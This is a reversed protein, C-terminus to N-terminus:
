FSPELSCATPRTTQRFPFTTMKVSTRKKMQFQTTVLKMMLFPNVFSSARFTSQDKLTFAAMVLKPPQLTSTHFVSSANLLLQHLILLLPVKTLRNM